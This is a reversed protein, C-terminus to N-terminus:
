ESKEQRPTGPTTQMPSDVAIGLEKWKALIDERSFFGQHRFREKGSADFFIQVPIIQVGHTRGAEPNEWVNVFEVDFTGAFDKKLDALVPAMLQCPICKEAGFDVLRPMARGPSDAGRTAVAAHQQNKMYLAMGIAIALAAIVFAKRAADLGARPHPAGDDPKEM